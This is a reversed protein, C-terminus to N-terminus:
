LWRVLGFDQRHALMPHNPYLRVGFEFVGATKPVMDLTYTAHADKQSKLELPYAAIFELETETLRRYFVIELGIDGPKLNQVHLTLSAKFHEGLPLSHNYTDPVQIEVVEIAEWARRVRAKWEVLDRVARYDHAKLKRSSEWLKSYFREQYDDLM